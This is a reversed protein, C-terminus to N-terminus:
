RFPKRCSVGPHILEVRRIDAATTVMPAHFFWSGVCFEDQGVEEMACEVAGRADQAFEGHFDATLQRIANGRLSVIREIRELAVDEFRFALELRVVRELARHICFLQQPYERPEEEVLPSQITAQWSYHSWRLRSETLNM